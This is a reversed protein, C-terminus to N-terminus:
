GSEVVAKNIYKESKVTNKWNKASLVLLNKIDGPVDYWYFKNEQIKM